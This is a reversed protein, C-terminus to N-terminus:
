SLLDTNNSLLVASYGDPGALASFTIGLAVADSRQLAIAERDTMTVRPLILRNVDGEDDTWEVALMVEQSAPANKMELRAVGSSNTVTSNLFYLGLTDKNHSGLAMSVELGMGTLPRKVPTIAQWM